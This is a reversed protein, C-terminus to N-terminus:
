KGEKRKRAESIKRPSDPNSPTAKGRTTLPLIGQRRAATVWEQATRESTNHLYELTKIPFEKNKLAENYQYAILELFEPTIKRRARKEIAASKIPKLTKGFKTSKIIAEQIAINLLLARYQEITKLQMRSVNQHLSVQNLARLAERESLGKSLLEKFTENAMKQSTKSLMTNSQFGRINVIAITPTEFKSVRILFDTFWTGEKIEFKFEANFTSFISNGDITSFGERDIPSIEISILGPVKWDKV